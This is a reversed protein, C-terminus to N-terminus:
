MECFRYIFIVCLGYMVFCIYVSVCKVFGVCVCGCMVFCVCLCFCMVLGM